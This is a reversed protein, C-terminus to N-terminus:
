LESHGTNLNAKQFQRIDATPWSSGTALPRKIAIFLASYLEAIHWCVTFCRRHNIVKLKMKLWWSFLNSCYFLTM